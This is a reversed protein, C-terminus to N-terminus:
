SWVEKIAKSIVSKKFNQRQNKGMGMSKRSFSLLGESRALYCVQPLELGQTHRYCPLALGAFVLWIIHM